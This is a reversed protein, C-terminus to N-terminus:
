HETHRAELAEAHEEWVQSDDLPPAQEVVVGHHDELHGIQLVHPEVAQSVDRPPGDPNLLVWFEAIQIRDVPGTDHVRVVVVVDGSVLWGLLAPVDTRPVHLATVLGADIVIDVVVAPGGHVALFTLFAPFSITQSISKTLQISPSTTTKNSQQNNAHSRQKAPQNPYKFLHHHNIMILGLHPVSTGGMQGQYGNM